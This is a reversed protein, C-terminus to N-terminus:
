DPPQCTSFLYTTDLRADIQFPAPHMGTLIRSLTISGSENLEAPNVTIYQFSGGQVSVIQPTINQLAIVVPSTLKPSSQLQITLAANAGSALNSASAWSRLDVNKYVCRVKRGNEVLRIKMPGFFRPNMAIVKNPSEAVITAPNENIRIDTNAANGDFPGRVELLRGAQNITPLQFLLHPIDIDIVPERPPHTDIELESPNQRDESPTKESATQPAVTITSKVVEFDEVTKLVIETVAFASVVQVQQSSSSIQVPLSVVELKYASLLKENEAREIESSGAAFMRVSLTFPDGEVLDDPIQFYIMGEPGSLEVIQIGFEKHESVSFAGQSAVIKSLHQLTNQLQDQNPYTRLRKQLHLLPPIASRLLGDHVGERIGELEKKASKIQEKFVRDKSQKEIQQLQREGLKLDAELQTEQAASCVAALLFFITFYLKM